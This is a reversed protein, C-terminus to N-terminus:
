QVQGCKCQCKYREQTKYKEIQDDYFELSSINSNQKRIGKLFDEKDRM